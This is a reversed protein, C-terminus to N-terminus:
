SLIFPKYLTHQFRIKLRFEQKKWFRWNQNIQSKYIRCSSDCFLPSLFWWLLLAPYIQICSIKEEEEFIHRAIRRIDHVNVYVYHLFNIQLSERQIQDVRLSEFCSRWNSRWKWIAYLAQNKDSHYRGKKSSTFAM